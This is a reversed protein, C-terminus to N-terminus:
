FSGLSRKRELDRPYVSALLRVMYCFHLPGLVLHKCRLQVSDARELHEDRVM